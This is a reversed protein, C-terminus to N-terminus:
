KPGPLVLAKIREDAVKLQEVELDSARGAEDFTAVYSEYAERALTLDRVDQIEGDYLRAREFWVQRREPQLKLAHGLWFLAREARDGRIAADTGARASESWSTGVRFALTARDSVRDPLPATLRFSKLYHRAADRWASQAYADDGRSKWVAAAGAPNRDGCAALLLAAVCLIPAMEQRINM